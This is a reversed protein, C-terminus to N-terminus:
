GTRGLTARRLRKIDGRYGGGRADPDGLTEEDANCAEGGLSTLSGLFKAALGPWAAGTFSELCGCRHGSVVRRLLEFRGSQPM